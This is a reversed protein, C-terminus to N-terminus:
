RDQGVRPMYVPFNSKNSLKVLHDNCSRGKRFGTQEKPIINHKECHYHLRNLVINLFFIEM